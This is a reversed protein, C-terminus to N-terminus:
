PIEEVILDRFSAEGKGGLYLGVRGEALTDDKVSGLLAAHAYVEIEGGRCRVEVNQSATMRKVLSWRAIVTAKTEEQRIVAAWGYQESRGAPYVILLYFGRDSQRFILGGGAPLANYAGSRRGFNRASDASLTFSVRARFNRFVPGNSAAINEGALRYGERSYQATPRNPWGSAPDRFDERYILRGEIRELKAQFAAPSSNRIGAPEFKQLGYGPRARIKFKGGSVEVKIRHHQEESASSQPYYAVTYQARLDSAIKGVTDRLDEDSKPFFSEAGSERSIRQLVKRPNDIEDGNLLTVKEGYQRLLNEEGKNYYGITYIQVQSEQVIRIVEELLHTSHQDYGDSVVVLVQRPLRARSCHRLGELIADYLSTGGGLATAAIAADIAKRDTNLDAALKVRDDFTVYFFESGERGADVLSRAAEKARELKSNEAMSNSRDLLIGLTIPQEESSFFEVKQAVGDEYVSFNGAKLGRVDKGRSDTVRVGVTVLSVKVRLTQEQALLLLLIATWTRM